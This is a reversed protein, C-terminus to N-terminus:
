SLHINRFAQPCSFNKERQHLAIYEMRDVQFAKENRWGMKRELLLLSIESKDWSCLRKSIERMKQGMFCFFFFGHSACKKRTNTPYLMNCQVLVFFFKKHGWAKLNSKKKKLLNDAFIQQM